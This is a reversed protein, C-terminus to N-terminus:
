FLCILRIRKLVDCAYVYLIISLTMGRGYPVIEAVSASYDSIPVRHAM